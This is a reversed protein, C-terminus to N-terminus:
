AKETPVRKAKSWCFLGFATFIAGLGLYVVWVEQPILEDLGRIAAILLLILLMSVMVLLLLGYVVFRAVKTIRDTTQTRIKTVLEELRGATEAAWDEEGVGETVQAGGQDAM